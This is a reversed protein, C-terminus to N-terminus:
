QVLKVGKLLSYGNGLTGNTTIEIFRGIVDRGQVDEIFFAALGIIEVTNRGSDPPDNRDYLPLKIIRPSSYVPDGNSNVVCSGNWYVNPDQSILYEVGQQTPGVMNGPEVQLIDGIAIESSSGNIINNEYEQAGAIPTGRNLPPFDVPYFYGPNTAPAGIVGSKIVVPDGLIWEFKPVAWPKIDKTEVITGNEAVAVASINATPMGIVGAFNLNITQNAQVQVRGITPFTVDTPSVQVAQNMCTNDAAFQIARNIAEGQSLTLGSAGALAAADAATQLQNRAIMMTGVDVGLSLFGIFVLMAIATIALINGKEDTIIKKM